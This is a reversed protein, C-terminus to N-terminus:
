PCLDRIEWGQAHLMAMAKTRDKAIASNRLAVAVLHTPRTLAVYSQKLRTVNQIGEGTGSSKGVTLW